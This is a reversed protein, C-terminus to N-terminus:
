CRRRKGASVVAPDRLAGGCVSDILCPYRTLAMLALDKDCRLKKDAFEFALPNQTMAALVLERDARLQRSARALLRGEVAVARM